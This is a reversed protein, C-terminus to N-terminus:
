LFYEMERKRKQFTMISKIEPRENLAINIEGVTIESTKESYDEHCVLHHRARRLLNDAFYKTVEFIMRESVNMTVGESIEESKLVVGCDLAFEKVFTADSIDITSIKEVDNACTSIKDTTIDVVIDAGELSFKKTLLSQSFCFSLLDLDKSHNKFLNGISAPSYNHSRGYMLFTKTSWEKLNPFPVTSAIRKVTKARSWESSLKKGINWSFFEERSTATYPYTCKYDLDRALNSWLPLRRFLYPLVEGSNKFRSRPLLVKYKEYDIIKEETIINKQLTNADIQKLIIQPRNVVQIQVVNGNDLLIKNFSQPLFKIPQGNATTLTKIICQNKNSIEIKEQKNCGYKANDEVYYESLGYILDNTEQHNVNSLRSKPVDTEMSPGKCKNFPLSYSHDLLSFEENLSSIGQDTIEEEHCYNHECTAPLDILLSKVKVTETLADILENKNAETTTERNLNIIPNSFDTVNEFTMAFEQCDRNTSDSPIIIIRMCTYSLCQRM